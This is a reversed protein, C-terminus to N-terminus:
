ATVSIWAVADYSDCFIFILLRGPLHRHLIHDVDTGCRRLLQMRSSILGDSIERVCTVIEELMAESLDPEIKTSERVSDIERGHAHHVVFLGIDFVIHFTDAIPECCRM